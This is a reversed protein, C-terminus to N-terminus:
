WLREKRITERPAIAAETSLLWRLPRGRGAHVEMGAVLLAEAGGYTIIPHPLSAFRKYASLRSRM